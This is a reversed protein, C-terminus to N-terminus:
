KMKHKFEDSAQKIQGQLNQAIRKMLARFEEPSLRKDLGREEILNKGHYVARVVVQAAKRMPYSESLRQVLQENNALLRILLRFVM